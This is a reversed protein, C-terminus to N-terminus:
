EGDRMARIMTTSDPVTRERSVSRAHLDEISTLFAAVAKVRDEAADFRPGGADSPRLREDIIHRVEAEISRRNDRAQAKLRDYITDDLKRITLTAM